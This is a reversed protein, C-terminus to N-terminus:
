FGGVPEEARETAVPGEAPDLGLTRGKETAPIGDVLWRPAPAGKLYHDFYQQMRINWDRINAATTPWHPEDDYNILWAPKGLRRLGLFLEIGQTWPVAADQDNHMILVPTNVGELFFLPSNEFYQVPREWLSGGIRSQTHEYQFMRSMGTGYRIGGYASTMNAVPAGAGAARFFDTRTVMYAIQYGGWSHGQVGVRDEDVWPESALKLVGPMVADMASEGPYGDRYVIDPMFVVYGRSAYFTPRIASRHPLPPVHQYLGDSSREYFYVMMPYEESPDFDEPRYLLGQLPVGDNSLWEVLEVSAWNYDGQQPNANSIKRAGSFGSDALWLDPFEAVDERTYLVVDANEAKVPRGFRKEGFLLREPRAAGDVRDRYFGSEKTRTDFASLVLPADPDVAREERDLRVLRLEMGNERGYGETVRRPTSRGRPDVAWIDFQDYVLLADDDETWGAMGYARPPMPHDDLEDWIPYPIGASLNAREGSDLDMAHWHRDGYDYWALYRAEP